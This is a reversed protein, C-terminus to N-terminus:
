EKVVRMFNRCGRVRGSENERVLGGPAFVDNRNAVDAAIGSVIYVVGKKPPPLDILERRYVDMVEMEIGDISLRRSIKKKSSVRARGEAPITLMKTGDTITLPHGTLNVLQVNEVSAM